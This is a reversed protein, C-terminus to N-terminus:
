NAPPQEGPLKALYTAPEKNFKPPCAGCCFRITRGKYGISVPDGMDGGGLKEGSVPCTTQINEPAIDEAAFKAFVKEPDKRFADAAAKDAFYIRQGQWDVHPSAKTDIAKGTVPCSTQPRGAPSEAAATLGSAALLLTVLVPVVLTRRM